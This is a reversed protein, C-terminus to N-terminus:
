QANSRQGVSDLYGIVVNWVKSFGMVGGLSFLLGHPLLKGRESYSHDKVM